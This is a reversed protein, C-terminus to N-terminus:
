ITFQCSLTHLSSFTESQVLSNLVRNSKCTNQRIINCFSYGAAVSPFYRDSDSFGGNTKPNKYPSAFLTPSASYIDSMLYLQYKQGSIETLLNTSFSQVAVCVAIVILAFKHRMLKNM